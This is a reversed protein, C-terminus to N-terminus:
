RITCDKARTGINIPQARTNAFVLKVDGTRTKDVATMVLHFGKSSIGSIPIIKGVENNNQASLRVAKAQGPRITM